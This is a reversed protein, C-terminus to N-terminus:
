HFSISNAKLEKTMFYCYPFFMLVEFEIIGLGFRDNKGYHWSIASYDLCNAETM